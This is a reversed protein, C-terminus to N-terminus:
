RRQQRPEPRKRIDRRDFRTDKPKIKDTHEKSSPVCFMERKTSVVDDPAFQNNIRLNHSKVEQQRVYDYCVLHRKENEIRFEKGNHVKASPNCLMRPKGLVVESKGFQDMVVVRETKIRDGKELRYCQFHEGPMHVAVPAPKVLNSCDTSYVFHNKTTKSTGAPRIWNFDTPIASGGFDNTTYFPKVSGWTSNNQTSGLNTFGGGTAPVISNVTNQNPVPSFGGNPISSESTTWGSGGTYVTGDAGKFVGAFGEAVSGDGWNILNIKCQKLDDDAINFSFRTAAAGWTYNSPATYVVTNVGNQSVVVMFRNDVNVAGDIQAAMASTSACLLATTLLTSIIKKSM